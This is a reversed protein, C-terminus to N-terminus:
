ERAEAQNLRFAEALLNLRFAQGSFGPRGDEGTGIVDPRRRPFSLTPCHYFLRNESYYM